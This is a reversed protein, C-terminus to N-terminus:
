EQQGELYARGAEVDAKIQAILADIGDFKKEERLRTEFSLELPQGYLDGSFDLLYAEVTVGEGNFTPRLGVNTVAMYRQGNWTAWGAYVGNAPLVQDEWVALNATPFGITRGRQQGQAVVGTVSYARGLAARAAEVDGAQLAQRIATSSIVTHDAEVMEIVDVEFGQEQGRAQLFAINGERQYGMAFDAGVWLSRLRLRQRLSEVFAAARIQRFAQDFPLTVVIDVGLKGMLEARQETSALYYRGTLGRLVVDPHPFFTLVIALQNQAHAATVLRRILQQHGLHVGDFVGITIVSDKEVPVDPLGYLHQM